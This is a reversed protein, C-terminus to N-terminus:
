KIRLNKESVRHDGQESQGTKRLFINGHQNNGLRCFAQRQTRNRCIGHWRFYMNSTDYDGDKRAPESLLPEQKM